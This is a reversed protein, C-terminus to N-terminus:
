EDITNVELFKVELITENEKENPHFTVSDAFQM